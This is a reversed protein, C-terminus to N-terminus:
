VGLITGLEKQVKPSLMAFMHVFTWHKVTIVQALNLTVLRASWAPQTDDGPVAPGNDIPSPVTPPM